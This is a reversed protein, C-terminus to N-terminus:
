EGTGGGELIQEVLQESREWLARALEEEGELASSRVPQQNEFYGGSVSAVEQSTALYVSTKAGERVEAGGSFYEHLLKTAIVGPHLANATIGAQRCRRSLERVFLVNARKSQAYARMGDYGREMELNDLDVSAGEHVMSSVVVVRSPANAELTSVLRTVLLFHALHNVAFTLEVGDESELRQKKLVGANCIVVKTDPYRRAVTAAADAVERLSALNCPLLNVEGVASLEDAAARSKESARSIMVVRHGQELLQRATEKGIGDNSGTIAIRM